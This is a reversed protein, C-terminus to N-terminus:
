IGYGGTLSDRFWPILQPFFTFIIFAIVIVLIISVSVFFPMAKAYSYIHNGITQGLAISVFVLSIDVVLFHRGLASSYFYFIMPMSFIAVILATALGTFWKDRNIQQKNRKLFYYIIWWSLIPLVVMKQHEWISENVAAIAGIIPSNGSFDYLFHFTSGIIFLLPISYLWARQTRSQQNKM